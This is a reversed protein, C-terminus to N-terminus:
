DFDSPDFDLGRGLGSVDFDLTGALADVDFDLTAALDDLDCDFDSFDDWREFNDDDLFNHKRRMSFSRKVDFYNGDADQIHLTRGDAGIDIKLTPADVARYPRKEARERIEQKRTHQYRFLYTNRGVRDTVTLFHGQQTVLVNKADILTRPRNMLWFCGCVVALAAVSLVVATLIENKM